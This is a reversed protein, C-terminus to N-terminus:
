GWIVSLFLGDMVKDDISQFGFCFGCEPAHFDMSLPMFIM